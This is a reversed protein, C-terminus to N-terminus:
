SKRLGALERLRAMSETTQDQAQPESQYAKYADRGLQAATLGSAVGTGIGPVLSALGAAGSLGAGVWDGQKARDYADWAGLAAGVGPILKAAAKGATAGGVKAYASAPIASAVGAATRALNTGSMGSTEAGAAPELTKTTPELEPTSIPAQGKFKGSAIGSLTDGKAVTYEQGSPLKIKQGVQIKNPDSIGSQQAIDSVKNWLNPKNTIPL